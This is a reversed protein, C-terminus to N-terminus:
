QPKSQLFEKWTKEIESAQSEKGCELTILVAGNLSDKLIILRGQVELHIKDGARHLSHDPNDSRFEISSASLLLTGTCSGIRHSHKVAFSSVSEGQKRRAMVDRYLTPAPGTSRSTAAVAKARLGPLNPAAPNLHEINQLVRAAEEYRGSNIATVYDALLQQMKRVTELMRGAEASQPEAALWIEASRLSAAYNGQQFSAETEQRMRELSKIRPEEARHASERLAEEESQRYIDRASTLLAEAQALDQKQIMQRAQLEMSGAQEFLRSALLHAQVGLAKEKSQETLSVREAIRDSAAKAQGGGSAAIAGRALPAVATTGSLSGPLEPQAAAKVAGPAALPKAQGARSIEDAVVGQSPKSVDTTIGPPAAAGSSDQSDPTRLWLQSVILILVVAVGAAAPLAFRGPRKRAPRIRRVPASSAGASDSAVVGASPAVRASQGSDPSVARVDAGVTGAGINEAFPRSATIPYPREPQKPTLEGRLKELDRLMEHVSPYRREPDKELARLVIRSIQPPISDDLTEPPAPTEQLIKLSIAIESDADFPRASTLLEYFVVGASFIDSRHDLPLGKLQEPSMYAPTGFRYGSRTLDSGALRALGFDLVKVEGAATLFINGPKIDRHVIGMLHAHSLGACVEVMICIKEELSIKSGSRIKDRLDQGELYEMAFYAVGDEEDYDHITIINKHSLQAASRAERLFRAKLAPDADPHSSLIKIALLREMKPDFAKYVVGMGGQGIKSLIRYRGIRKVEKAPNLNHV